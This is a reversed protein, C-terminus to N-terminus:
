KKRRRRPKVTSVSRIRDLRFQRDDERLHCFADLYVEDADDPTIVRTTSRGNQDRYEIEVDTGAELAEVLLELETGSLRTREALFHALDDFPDTTEDLSDPPMIRIDILPDGPLAVGSPAEDPLALLDEALARLEAELLPKPAALFYPEDVLLPPRDVVTREVAVTGDTQQQVPAYGAKRLAALTEKAPKSSALVTPALAHLSLESLSRNRSLELLLAEEGLVCCRVNRVQLQGFRRGVDKILYELPQPLSARAIATLKGLLDEATHGQDMARRVSEPSFRWTSATDRGEPDAMLNLTAALRGSPTGAVVATLDAQLLATEQASPLLQTAASLLAEEDDVCRGLASLAGYAIAGVAEAEAWNVQIPDVLCDACCYRVPRKWALREGILNPEGLASGTEWRSLEALLDKRFARDFADPRPLLAPDPKDVVKSFMAAAPQQWWARALQVYRQAPTAQQWDDALNSAVVCGARDISLLEAAAATALWLRVEHQDTRLAKAVQKLVRLGVGGNQLQALPNAACHELLRAVGDAFGIAALAAAKDIETSDILPTPPTQPEPRLVPKDTSERLALGIERPMEFPGGYSTFQSRSILFGRDILWRVDPSQPSPGGLTYGLTSDDHALQMALEVTPGPAKALEASVKAQDLMFEEIRQITDAKRKAPALGLAESIGRATNSVHPQLLKAVPRGLGATRADRLPIALRFVGPSDPRILAREQLVRLARDLEPDDGLMQEIADRTCGDGLICLAELVASCGTDLQDLAHQLAGPSDLVTALHPLSRAGWSEPRDRLLAALGDRGLGRLWQILVSDM